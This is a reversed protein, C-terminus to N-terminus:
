ENPRLPVRPNGEFFLTYVEDYLRDFARATL